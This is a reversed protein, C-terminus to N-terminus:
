GATNVTSGVRLVTEQAPAEQGAQDSALFLLTLWLWPTPEQLPPPNYLPGVGPAATLLSCSKERGKEVGLLSCIISILSLEQM